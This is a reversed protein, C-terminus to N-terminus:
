PGSIVKLLITIQKSPKLAWTCLPELMIISNVRLHTLTRLFDLTLWNQSETKSLSIPQNSTETFSKKKSCKESDQLYTDLFKSLLNNLFFITNLSLNVFTVMTASNLSLIPTIPLRTSILCRSVIPIILSKWWMLKTESYFHKFRM